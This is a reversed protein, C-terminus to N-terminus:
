FVNDIFNRVSRESKVLKSPALAIDTDTIQLVFIGEAAFICLMMFSSLGPAFIADLSPDSLVYMSLTLNDSIADLLGLCTIGLPIYVLFTQDQKYQNKVEDDGFM